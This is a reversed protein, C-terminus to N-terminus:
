RTPADIKTRSNLTAANVQLLKAAGDEGYLKWNCSKLASLIHEKEIERMSKITEKSAPEGAASEKSAALFPKKFFAPLDSVNIIGGQTLLVSRAVFNELERVNGPWDYEMM